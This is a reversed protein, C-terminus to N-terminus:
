LIPERVSWGEFRRHRGKKASRDRRQSGGCHRHFRHPASRCRGRRGLGCRIEVSEDGFGGFVKGVVLTQCRFALEALSSLLKFFQLAREVLQIHAFFLRAATSHELSKSDELVVFEDLAREYKRQEVPM